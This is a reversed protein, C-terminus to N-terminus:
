QKKNENYWEVFEVCANYVAEIKSTEIKETIPVFELLLKENGTKRYIYCEDEYIVIRFEDELEKEIKEVVQMIWNWDSHYRFEHEVWFGGNIYFSGTEYKEYLGMFEALLRNKETTTM